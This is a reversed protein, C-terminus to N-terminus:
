RVPRLRLMVEEEAVLRVAPAEGADGLRKEAARQGRHAHHVLGVQRPELAHVACAPHEEDMVRGALKGTTGGLVPVAMRLSGTVRLGAAIRARSDAGAAAGANWRWSPRSKRLRRGNRHSRPTDDCASPEASTVIPFVRTNHVALTSSRTG